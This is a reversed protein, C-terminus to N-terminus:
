QPQAGSERVVSRWKETEKRIFQAYQEPPGGVPDAGENVLKEELTPLIEALAQNLQKILAPPTDKPASMGFWSGASFGPFGKEAVPPIGPLARSTRESSIALATLKGGRIQSIASPITAFMFQIRGAILDLLADAGKYPVHQAQADIQQSLMFSSLHSSTGIGTSGYTLKGKNAKAYKVFEEFTKLGLSPPVVLVNPVDALLMIPALDKQPDYPLNKFLTPNVAMPGVSNIILTYGDPAAHVVYETGINGGAGPKNEVVFSQKYRETLKEAVARAIIDTTGGATFAVIIRVPRNPWNADQAFLRGTSGLGAGAVAAAGILRRRPLDPRYHTSLSRKM